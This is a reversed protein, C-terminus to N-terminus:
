PRNLDFPFLTEKAPALAADPETLGPDCHLKGVRSASPARRPCLLTRTDGPGRQNERRTTKPRKQPRSPWGESVPPEVDSRHAPFVDSKHRWNPYPVSATFVRRVDDGVLSMPLSSRLTKVRTQAVLPLAGEGWGEGGIPSLSSLLWNM